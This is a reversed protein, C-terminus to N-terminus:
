FSIDELAWVEGSRTTGAGSTVAALPDDKGRWRALARQLDERLTAGGIEGLQYRKGINEVQIVVDSM